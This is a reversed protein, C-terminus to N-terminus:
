LLWSFTINPELFFDIALKKGESVVLSDLHITGEVMSQSQKTIIWNLNEIPNGSFTILLFDAINQTLIDPNEFSEISIVLKIHSDILYPTILFKSKSIIYEKTDLQTTPLSIDKHQLLHTGMIIFAVLLAYFILRRYVPKVNGM